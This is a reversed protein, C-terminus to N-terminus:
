IIKEIVKEESIYFLRWAFLFLFLSIISCYIFRDFYIIKGYIIADRVGCVLYTLPNWKIISQLLIGPKTPSYIVPTIYMILVMIFSIAKQIDVAVVNIVATILGISSGLFFLPLILIPLFFIMMSPYVGLFVLVIMTIGFIISFNALQQLTQKVLLIDHPFNVQTIFGSGAKLTGSAGEFFNVFLGFITTSILVYAPYPIGVDGPDLVGTANMFVWSIIGMIPTLILWSMGLFSKKYSMLFDRKFLQIILDKNNVINKILIGWTSILGKKSRSNPEYSTVKELNM